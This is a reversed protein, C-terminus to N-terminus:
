EHASGGTVIHTLDVKLNDLHCEAASCFHALFVRLRTLGSSIDEGSELAEVLELSSQVLHLEDTLASVSSLAQDALAWLEPNM